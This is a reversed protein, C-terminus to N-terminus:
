VPAGGPRPILDLELFAFLRDVRVVTAEGVAALVGYQAAIRELELAADVTRGAAAYHPTAVSGLNGVLATGSNIGISISLSEGPGLERGISEATEGLRLACACARRQAEEDPRSAEFIATVAGPMIRDIVAGHDRLVTELADLIRRTAAILKAPDASDARAAYDRIRLSLYTIDRRQPALGLKGALAASSLQWARKARPRNGADSQALVGASFVCGMAIAVTFLDFLAGWRLAMGWAFLSFAALAAATATAAGFVSRRAFMVVVIVGAIALFLLEAPWAIPPRPLDRPAVGYITREILFIFFSRIAHPIDAAETAM